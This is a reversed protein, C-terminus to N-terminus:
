PTIAEIGTVFRKIFNVVDVVQSYDIPNKRQNIYDWDSEHSIKNRRDIILGLEDKVSQANLGMTVSLKSWVNKVEIKNFLDEISRASQYTETRQIKRLEINLFNRKEVESFAANLEQMAQISIKIKEFQVNFNGKGLFSEVIETRYFDHLYNDLASVSLVIIARLLEDSQDKLLPYDKALLNHLKLLDDISSINGQFNNDAFNNSPM